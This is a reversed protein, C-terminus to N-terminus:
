GQVPSSTGQRGHVPCDEMPGDYDAPARLVCPCEDDRQGTFVRAAPQDFSAVDLSAVQRVAALVKTFEALTWTWYGSRTNLDALPLAWMPFAGDASLRRRTESSIHVRALAPGKGRVKHIVVGYPFGANVAEQDAQHLWTPVAASKVDKAELIFPWAHLDGVDKAGEQTQRKINRWDLANLFRQAPTLDKWNDRYLGLTVNLFDRTLSEWATGRAKSPNAM